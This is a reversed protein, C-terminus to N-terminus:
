IFLKSTTIEVPDCRIGNWHSVLNVTALQIGNTDNATWKAFSPHDSSFVFHLAGSTLADEQKFTFHTDAYFSTNPFIPSGRSTCRFAVDTVNEYTRSLEFNGRTHYEEVDGWGHNYGTSLPLIENRNM